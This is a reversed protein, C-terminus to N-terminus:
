LVSLLLLRCLLLCAQPLPLSFATIIPGRQAEGLPPAPLRPLFLNVAPLGKLNKVLAAVAPAPDWVSPHANLSFPPSTSGSPM